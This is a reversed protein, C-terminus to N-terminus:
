AKTAAILFERNGDGGQIPSEMTGLVSWGSVSPLWRAIDTLATNQAEADRVIGGKGIAWRGIEFQPKVLAVLWSSKAAMNLAPPLALKLGIFSVDAVIAEPTEPVHISSLDRANVGERRIVREDRALRPHMQSHGVDIAYVCKAGGMLLVDSFGGTSAGLDVCIRGEPSLAFRELAAALKLGGRSVYPHPKEYEIAAADSLTQSPKAVVRGNVRVKGAVIAAQAENRSQAFGHEVLFVDARAESM